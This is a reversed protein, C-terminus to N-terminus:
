ALHDRREAEVKQAATVKWEEAERRMIAEQHAQEEEQRKRQEEVERHEREERARRAAIDEASLNSLDIPM